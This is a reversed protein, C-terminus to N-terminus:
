KDRGPSVFVCVSEAEKARVFRTVSTRPDVTPLNKGPRPPIETLSCSSAMPSRFALRYRYRCALFFIHNLDLLKERRRSFPFFPLEARCAALRRLFVLVLLLLPLVLERRNLRCAPLFSRPARDGRNGETRYDKMSRSGTSGNLFNLPYLSREGRQGTTGREGNHAVTSRFIRSLFQPPGEEREGPIKERSRSSTVSVRGPLYPSLPLTVTSAAPCLRSIDLNFRSSSEGQQLPRKLYRRQIYWECIFRAVIRFPNGSNIM